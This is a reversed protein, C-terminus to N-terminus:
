IGSIITEMDKKTMGSIAIKKNKSKHGSIISIRSKKIGLKDSLFKICENNAKGDVPAATIKVKLADDQIGAIECRSSRPLVRVNFVVGDKTEKVSIM